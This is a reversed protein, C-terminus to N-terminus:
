QGRKYFDVSIVYEDRLPFRNVNAPTEKELVHRSHHRHFLQVKPILTLGLEWQWGAYRVQRNTSDMEFNNRWFFRTLSPLQLLTVDVIATAGFQMCEQSPTGDARVGTCNGGITEYEAFYPDRYNVHQRYEVGVRDASLLRYGEQAEGRRSCLVGMGIALVIFIVLQQSRDM